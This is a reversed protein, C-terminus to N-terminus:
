VKLRFSDAGAAIQSPVLASCHQLLMTYGLPAIASLFEQM